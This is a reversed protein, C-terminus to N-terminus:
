SAWVLCNTLGTDRYEMRIAGHSIAARGAPPPGVVTGLECVRLLAIDAPPTSM